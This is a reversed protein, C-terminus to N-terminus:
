HVLLQRYRTIGSLLPNGDTDPLIELAATIAPHNGAFTGGLTISGPTTTPDSVWTAASAQDSTNVHTNLTQTPNNPTFAVAATPTVSVGYVRSGPTSTTISVASSTHAIAAGDQHRSAGALVRVDLLGGGFDSDLAATVALEGPATDLWLTAIVALANNEASAVSVQAAWQHGATDTITIGPTSYSFEEVAIAVLLSRAPPTFTPSTLSGLLGTGM